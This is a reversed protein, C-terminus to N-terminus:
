RIILRDVTASGSGITFTGQVTTYGTATFLGADMGGQLIVSLAQNFFLDEYFTYIRALLTKRDISNDYAEQISPYGSSTYQIWVQKNPTFTAIVTKDGSM